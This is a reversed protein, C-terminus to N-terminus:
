FSNQGAQAVVPAFGIVRSTEKVRKLLAEIRAADAKTANGFKNSHDSYESSDIQTTIIHHRGERMRADILDKLFDTVREDAAGSLLADDMLLVQYRSWHRVMELVERSNKVSKLVEPWLIGVHLSHKVLCRKLLVIALRTKGARSPGNFLLSETGKYDRTAAYQAKPFGDHTTSTDRLSTPCLSEWYTKARAMADDQIAKARCDDCAVGIAVTLQPAELPTKCRSCVAPVIRNFEHAPNGHAEALAAFSMDGLDAGLTLDFLRPVATHRSQTLTSM